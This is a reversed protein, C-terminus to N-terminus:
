AAKGKGADKVAKDVQHLAAVHQALERDDLQEVWRREDQKAGHRYRPWIPHRKSRLLLGLLGSM